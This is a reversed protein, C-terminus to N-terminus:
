IMEAIEELVVFRFYCEWFIPSFSFSFSFFGRLSRHSHEASPSHKQGLNKAARMHKSVPSHASRNIAPGFSVLPYQVDAPEVLVNVQSHESSCEDWKALYNVQLFEQRESRVFPEVM